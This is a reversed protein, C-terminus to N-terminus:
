LQGFKFVDHAAFPIEPTDVIEALDDHLDIIPRGDQQAVHGPDFEAGVLPATNGLQVALSLNCAADRQLPEPEIREVHDIVHFFADRLQGRAQGRARVDDRDVVARVEDIRRDVGQLMREQLLAGDDRQHADDEKQVNAARKDRDEHQGDADQHRKGGHAPEPRPAM